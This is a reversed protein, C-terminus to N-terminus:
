SFMYEIWLFKILLLPSLLLLSASVIRLFNTNGVKELLPKSLSFARRVTIVISLLELLRFSFILKDLCVRVQELSPEDWSPNEAVAPFVVPPAPPPPEMVSQSMFNGNPIFERNM